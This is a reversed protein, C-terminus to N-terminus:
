KPSTIFVVKATMLYELAVLLKYFKHDPKKQIQKFILKIM